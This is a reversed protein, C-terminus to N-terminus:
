IGIFPCRPLETNLKQSNDQAQRPFNCRQKTSCFQILLLFANRGCVSRVQNDAALYASPDDLMFGSVGMNTVWHTFINTLEARWEAKSLDGAPQGEGWVSWYCAQM